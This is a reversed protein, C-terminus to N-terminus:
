HDRSKETLSFGHTTKDWFFPATILAALARYGAVAALPFYFLLTPVWPMLGRHRPGAVAALGITLGIVEAFIFLGTLWRLGQPGLMETVPHPLGLVVLWLSWLLPALLFQSITAIFFVQFGLFRLPGLDRLLKWPHRMHVVYTAMYGKLWRSRQRIWPWLRCNAEELTVTDIIETRYGARALRMGLDADETVNHADWGKMRDLVSRRFFITTGGLPIAFRLRELGPLMIRFWSAYEITFCRALWNMRPNYFDLIGQLCGVDGDAAAFHQVVTEIQDPAPSDEADYVGIIEGSAFRRAFNLARPKTTLQGRPVTIIRMWAPLDATVLAHRTQDDDEELILLVELAPRPYSLRSLQKVLVGAIDRERYLPVLLSVRPRHHEASPATSRDARHTMQTALAALKLCVMMVLTLVAWGFAAVFFVNPVALILMGLTGGGLVAIRRQRPTEIRPLTRCSEREPVCTEADAVLQRAFARGIATEIDQASAIGMIVEGLTEPLAAAAAEFSEPEATAVVLTSGLLMWPFIRHALCLELDVIRSLAPDPPGSAFDLPIAAFRAAEARMLADTSVMGEALVVQSLSVKLRESVSLARLLTAHDMAGQAVLVQGLPQAFSESLRATQPGRLDLRSTSM